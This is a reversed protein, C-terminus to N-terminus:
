TMESDPWVFLNLQAGSPSFLFALAWHHRCVLYADISSFYARNEQGILEVFSGVTPRGLFPRGGWFVAVM